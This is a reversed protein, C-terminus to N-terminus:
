GGFAKALKSKAAQEAEGAGGQVQKAADAEAKAKNLADWPSFNTDAM